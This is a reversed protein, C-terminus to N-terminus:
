VTYCCLVQAIKRKLWILRARHNKSKMFMERNAQTEFVNMGYAKDEDTLGDMANLEELCKEVSYEEEHRRKEEIANMAKNTQDKKFEVYDELVSGIHSQRRRRRSGGEITEKHASSTEQVDSAFPSTDFPDLGQESSSVAAPVVPASPPARAAPPLPPARGTPASPPARGTPALPPVEQTSTFNLDGIAV